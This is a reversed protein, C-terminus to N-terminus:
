SVVEAVCMDHPEAPLDDLLQFPYAVGISTVRGLHAAAALLRDYYGGGYGLRRGDPTFALGPVLWVDVDGPAVAKASFPPECIGWRGPRLEEPVVRALGYDRTQPRWRPAAMVVGRRALVDMLPQLDIEDATACYVAVVLRERKPPITELRKLLKACLARSFADREDRSVQCRKRRM